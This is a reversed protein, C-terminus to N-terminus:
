YVPMSEGSIMSEDIPSHGSILLGDVPIKEGPRVQVIDGVIVEAIPIDAEVGDRLVRATKPRMGMLRKIAETTRGRAGEELLRGFLILVIISASTDFYVSVEVGRDIFFSPVLTVVVSYIYASSTGVAILTNMDTTGHRAAIMAGRYFRAGCYLQVPTALLLQIFYSGRETLGFFTELGFLGRHMVIFIPITLALALFLSRKLPSIKLSSEEEQSDSFVGSNDGIIDAEYGLSRVTSLLEDAEVLQPNYTLTARATAFNVSASEVGPLSGLAKEIKTSCSACSMGTIAIDINAGETHM